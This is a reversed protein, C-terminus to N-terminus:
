PLNSDHPTYEVVKPPPFRNLDSYPNGGPLPVPIEESYDEVEDVPFDTDNEQDDETTDEKKSNPDSGVSDSSASGQLTNLQESLKQFYANRDVIDETTASQASKLSNLTNSLSNTSPANEALSSENLPNSTSNQKINPYVQSLPKPEIPQNPNINPQAVNIENQNITSANNAADNIINIDESASNIQEDKIINGQSKETIKESSNGTFFFVLFVAIILILDSTRKKFLKFLKDVVQNKM